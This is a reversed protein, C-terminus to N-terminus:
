SLKAKNEVGGEGPKTPQETPESPDIGTDDSPPTADDPKKTGLDKLAEEIVRAGTAGMFGAAAKGIKGEKLNKTSNEALDSSKPLKEKVSDISGNAVDKIPDLAQEAREISERAAGEWKGFEAEIKGREADLRDQIDGLNERIGDLSEQIEGLKAGAKDTVADRLSQIKELPIRFIPKNPKNGNDDGSNGNGQAAVVINNMRTQAGSVFAASRTNVTPAVTRSSPRAFATSPSFAAITM